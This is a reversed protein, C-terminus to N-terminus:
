RFRVVQCPTAASVVFMDEPKLSSGKRIITLSQRPVLAQLACWPAILMIKRWTKAEVGDNSQLFCKLTVVGLSATWASM